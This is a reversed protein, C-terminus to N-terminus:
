EAPRNILDTDWGVAAELLLRDCQRRLERAQRKEERLLVVEPDSELPASTSKAECASAGVPISGTYVAKCAAAYGSRWPAPPDGLTATTRHFLYTRV